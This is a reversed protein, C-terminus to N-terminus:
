HPGRSHEEDPRDGLAVAAVRLREAHVLALTEKARSPRLAVGPQVVRVRDLPELDDQRSGAVGPDVEGATSRSYIMRVSVRWRPTLRAPTSTMRWMFCRISFICPSTWFISTTRLSSSSVRRGGRARSADTAGRRV